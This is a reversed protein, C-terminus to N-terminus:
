REEKEKKNVEYAYRLLVIGIISLFLFPFWHVALFFLAFIMTVIGPTYRMRRIRGAWWRSTPTTNIDIRGKKM